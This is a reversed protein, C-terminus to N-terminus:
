PQTTKQKLLTLYAQQIKAMLRLLIKEAKNQQLYNRLLKYWQQTSSNTLKFIEKPKDTILPEWLSKINKLLELLLM